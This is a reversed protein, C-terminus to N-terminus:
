GPIWLYEASSDLSPKTELSVSCIGSGDGTKLDCDATTTLEATKVNSFSFRWNFSSCEFSLSLCLLRLLTSSLLDSWVDSCEGKLTQGDAREDADETVRNVTVRTSSFVCFWILLYNITLIWKSKLKKGSKM